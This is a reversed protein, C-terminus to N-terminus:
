AHRYKIMYTYLLHIYLDKLLFIYFKTFIISINIFGNALTM